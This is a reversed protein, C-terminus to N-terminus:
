EQTALIDIPFIIFYIAKLYDPKSIFLVLFHIVHVKYDFFQGTSELHITNSSSSSGWEQAERPRFSIMLSCDKATAAILFNKVIKLSQDLPLSHLSAYRHLEEDGNLQGCVVCPESIVDYYAHIAGEIDLSDLKQVELLRDLVGSKYLTETVLQLLSTTCLGDDAVMVSKLADEFAEGVIVDTNEASGGLAGFILSGNLFM